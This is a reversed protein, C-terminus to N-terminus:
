RFSLIAEDAEARSEARYARGSGTLGRPWQRADVPRYRVQPM